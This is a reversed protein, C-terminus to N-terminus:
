TMDIDLQMDVDSTTDPQMDVIQNNTNNKDDKPDDSCGSALICAVGFLATCIKDNFMKQIKM